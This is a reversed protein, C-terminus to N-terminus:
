KAPKVLQHISKVIEQLKESSNEITKDLFLPQNIKTDVPVTISYNNYGNFSNDMNVRALTQKYADAKTRSFLDSETPSFELKSINNRKCVKGLYVKNAEIVAKDQANVAKDVHVAAALKNNRKQIAKQLM